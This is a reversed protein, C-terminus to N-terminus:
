GKQGNQYITAVQSVNERFKTQDQVNSNVNSNTNDPANDSPKDTLFSPVLCPSSFEVKEILWNMDDM